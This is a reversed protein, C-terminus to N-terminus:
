TLNKMLFGNLHPKHAVHKEMPGRARAPSCSADRATIGEIAMATSLERQVTSNLANLAQLRNLQILTVAGRQEVLLSDASKLPIAGQLHSFV